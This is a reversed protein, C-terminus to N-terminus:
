KKIRDKLANDLNLVGMYYHFDADTEKKLEMLEKLHNAQSYMQWDKSGLNMRLLEINYIKSKLYESLMGLSIVNMESDTLEKSFEGLDSDIKINDKYRFKSLSKKLLMLMENNFDETELELYDYDTISSLFLGYIEELQTNM